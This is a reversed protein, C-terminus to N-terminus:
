LLILNGTRFIRQPKDSFEFKLDKAKPYKVNTFDIKRGSEVELVTPILFDENPKNSNIHWGDEISVKVKLNVMGGAAVSDTSLITKISVLDKPIDFQAFSSTTLLLFCTTLLLSLPTLLISSKQTKIFEAIRNIGSNWRKNKGVIVPIDNEGAKRSKTGIEDSSLMKWIGNVM